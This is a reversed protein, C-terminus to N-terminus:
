FRILFIGEGSNALALREETIVKNMSYDAEKKKMSFGIIIICIIALIYLVVFILGAVSCKSNRM